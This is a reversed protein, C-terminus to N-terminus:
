DTETTPSKRNPPAAPEVVRPARRVLREGHAAQRRQVDRLMAEMDFDFQKALEERARRVEDVIPDHWM